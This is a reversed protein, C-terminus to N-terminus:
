DYEEQILEKYKKSFKFYFLTGKLDNKEHSFSYNEWGTVEFGTFPFVLVEEEKTYYSIDRLYANSIIYKKKDSESINSIEILVNLNKSDEEDEDSENAKELSKKPPNAICCNSKSIDSYSKSKNDDSDSRVCNSQFAIAVKFADMNQEETKVNSSEEEEKKNITFSLFGKNFIITDTNSISKLYNIESLDLKTGRVLKSYYKPRYSNCALGRYLLRIYTEYEKYESRMLCKNMVSYFPSEHTYTRAWWKSIIVEPVEKFLILPKLLKEINKTCFNVLFFKTFENLLGFDITKNNYIDKYFHPLSSIDQFEKFVILGTYDKTFIGEYKNCTKFNNINTYIDEFFSLVGDFRDVVGGRNFFTKNYIKGIEDNKHKEIFSKTSSTFIISFPVVRLEEYTRKMYGFFEPYITGSTIVFISEFQIEELADIGEHADEFTQIDLNYKKKLIDQYGKNEQNNVKADIWILKSIILNGNNSM